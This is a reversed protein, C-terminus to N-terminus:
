SANTLCKDAALWRAANYSANVMPIKGISTTTVKERAAREKAADKARQQAETPTYKKPNRPTIEDNCFGGGVGPTM